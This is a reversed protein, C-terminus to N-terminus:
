EDASPAGTTSVESKNGLHLENSWVYRFLNRMDAYRAPTSSSGLVVGVIEVGDREGAAVLCAGAPGTTGTKVGLYGERQLLQNTNKWVIQRKYGVVSEVEVLYRRTSVIKRFTENELAKRGLIAMDAVTTVHGRATLGHSNRYGTDVMGLEKATDNMAAIFRDYSDGEGDPNILEGFKEALAVSADNGSPLLLGYLLEGVTLQEGAKVASTSGSTDDARQSFTITSELAEPHDEAYKLVLYATMIKTTSAPDRIMHENDGALMTGTKVDVFCWAPCTVIPPGTLPERPLKEENVAAIEAVTPIAESEDVLPGLAKWMQRDVVGNPELSEQKQFAIVASETNPGFDGDVSINPSPKLRVNLTRQLGEVLDGAAGIKLTRAIAPPAAEADGAFYNYAILGIEAALLEAENSDDWSHDDNKTTLVCFAIKGKPTDILGADTRSDGVSGTKHAIRISEPLLRPVGSKATCDYLHKLIQECDEKGLFEDNSVLEALQIMDRCSTSGLGYKQSREPNVSTDRRYVKSNLRTEDCGLSEMLRNTEEIGVQDIVLNTATNDSFAIMLQIADRLSLQLGPSFHTTLVGSGPVQDDEKLTIPQELKLKGEHIAKYTAMMIPFKILSATPMAQDARYAFTEGTPLFRIMVGVEGRHNEILPLVLKELESPVPKQDRSAEPSEAKTSTSFCTTLLLAAALMLHQTYRPHLM